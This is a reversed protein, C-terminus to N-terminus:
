GIWTRILPAIKWEKLRRLCAIQSFEETHYDVVARHGMISLSVGIKM